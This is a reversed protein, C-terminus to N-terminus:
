QPVIGLAPLTKSLYQFDAKMRAAYEDPTNGMVFLSLAELKALVGPDALGKRIEAALREVTARNMRAPGLMGFWPQWNYFDPVSDNIIPVDPLTKLRTRGIVALVRVNGSSLFPQITTYSPFYVQMRGTALDTTMTALGGSNYPVHLMDIHAAQKLTEGFMHFTSGIGTTGYALKGPNKKAYDILEAMSRAPVQSNIVILNPVDILISIPSFDKFGDFTQQKFMFPASLLTPSTLLLTYGDPAARAVAAAALSGSAGPRTDIIIPQGFAEGMKATVLRLATDGANGAPTSSIVQIPKVPYAQSWAAASLAAQGAVVAVLAAARLSNM